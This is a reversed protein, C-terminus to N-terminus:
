QAPKMEPVPAADTAPAAAAPDYFFSWRTESKRAGAKASVIVTYAKDTLKRAIKYSVLKTAPDYTAPVVGFGSIRMEVSKPDIDGLTALNAKIEPRPDSVTEGEMPQTLMAVAAPMVAQASSGASSASGEVAGKFTVAQEFIKPKAFEIAYRGLMSADANHALRQGYVTFAAEYGADMAVKRVLENHMGYPYAFATVKIGLNQELTQKSGEIESKLWALYQEGSKGAKASLKSHTITHSQIDVGADRMEALQAWSLSKGGSGVFQTYIFLTFPYGFQKLIPWAVSYGSEYGDDITIVASKAPINKEGRRWALFDAMPIVTIGNDKLAQLQEVFTEPPISLYGLKSGEFRHYCLVVAQANPDIPEPTPEPTPTPTAAAVPTQVPSPSPAADAGTSPKGCGALALAIAAYAPFLIRSVDTM